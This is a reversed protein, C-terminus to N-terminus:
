APPVCFRRHHALFEEGVVHDPHRTLVGLVAGGVECVSGDPDVYVAFGDFRKHCNPCLCLMNEVVDPGDHPAGLGRIHAAESYGRDVLAVRTGCFQCTDRYLQTIWQRKAPDRVVREGTVSRRRTGAASDYGDLGVRELLAQQDVAGFYKARVVALARVRTAPDLLAQFAEETFGASPNLRDLEGRSPTADAAYGPMVWLGDRALRSFPYEPTVASTGAGFEALLAGVEVKFREWPHLREGAAVRGMAWLVSLPKHLTPVGDRWKVHLKLAGLKTVVDIV